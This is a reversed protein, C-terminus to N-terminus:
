LYNMDLNIQWILSFLFLYQFYMVDYIIEHDNTEVTVQGV